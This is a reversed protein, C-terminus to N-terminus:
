RRKSRRREAKERERKEKAAQLQAGRSNPNLKPQKKQPQPQRKPARAAAAAANEANHESSRSSRATRGRMVGALHQVDPADRDVRWSAWIEGGPVPDSVRISIHSHKDIIHRALPAPMLIGGLGTAVIELAGRLDAPMWAPDEWTEAAPWEPAHNPHDLIRVDSREAIEALSISEEGALDHGKPLVLALAETYLRLAHHTREADGTAGAPTAGPATRELLMDYGDSNGPRGYPRPFPVITLPQEPSVVMWRKVWKSPAVGRTFGLTIETTGPAEENM